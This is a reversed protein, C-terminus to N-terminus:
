EDDRTAARLPCRTQTTFTVHYIRHFFSSFFSGISDMENWLHWKVIKMHISLAYANPMCLLTLEEM